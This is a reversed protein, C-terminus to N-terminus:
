TGCAWEQRFAIGQAILSVLNYDVDYGTCNSCNSPNSSSNSFVTDVTFYLDTVTIFSRHVCSPLETSRFELRRGSSSAKPGCLSLIGYRILLREQVVTCYFVVRM